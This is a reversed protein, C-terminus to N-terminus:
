SVPSLRPGFQNDLPQLTKQEVDVFGPDAWGRASAIARPIWM